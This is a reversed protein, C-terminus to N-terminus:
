FTTLALLTRDITRDMDKIEELLENREIVAITDERVSSSDRASLHAILENQASNKVENAYDEVKKILEAKEANLKLADLRAVERETRMVELSKELYDTNVQDYAITAELEEIRQSSNHLQDTVDNLDEIASNLMDIQANMRAITERLEIVEQSPTEKAGVQQWPEDLPTQELNVSTYVPPVVNVLVVQQPQSYNVFIVERPGSLLNARTNHDLYMVQWFYAEPLIFLNQRQANNLRLVSNRQVPDLAWFLQQESYTMTWLIDREHSKLGFYYDWYSYNNWSWFMDSQRPSLALVVRQRSSPLGFFAGWYNPSWGLVVTQSSPPLGWFPGIYPNYDYLMWFRSQQQLSWRWYANTRSANLGALYGRQYDYM